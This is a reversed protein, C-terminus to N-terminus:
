KPLVFESLETHHAYTCLHNPAYVTASISPPWPAMGGGWLGMDPLSVLQELLFSLAYHDTRVFFQVYGIRLTTKLNHPADSCGRLQDDVTFCMCKLISLITAVLPKRVATSHVLDM